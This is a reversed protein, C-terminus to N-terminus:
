PKFPAADQRHREWNLAYRSALQPNDRVILINEANRHQATWTFNLSGTLVIANATDPDIVIVKNHANEYRTELWVAIGARSLEALRSSGVKGHQGADALVRVTVGRRQAAILNAAFRKSTLLYAQVLVAHRARSLNDAIAADTDDWPAFVAQVTGQAAIEPQAADFAHAPAAMAMLVPVVLVALSRAMM